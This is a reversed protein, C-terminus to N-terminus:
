LISKRKRLRALNLIKYMRLLFYRDGLWGVLRGWLATLGKPIDPLPTASTFDVACDDINFTYRGTRQIKPNINLFSRLQDLEINGLWQPLDSTAKFECVNALNQLLLRQGQTLQNERSEFYAVDPDIHLLPKLWLRHLVTRIANKTGPITPNYLLYADRYKEWYHAVDPGIRIADCLGIAPLIPTGCTLFFADAGMAERMMRLAERYAAERPMDKFRKGKLAGGFLFDLKLYDFGWVRVQKMLAVLWSTVDPHTTDLAYLREGWNFGASVLKGTKDHLFWDPHERFLKSSKTAILPALWLGARRGTSKIKDALAKMGSPFKANVEWDGIDVQWGDDVQLVDFPLDGLDDFIKHLTREDIATYLSYWSCWVRPAVDKKIQGFRIGLENVYEAFVVQEQGHAIFWEVAEAECRGSLQDQLSVNADTDLAGLLLVNGDAFEVAGLWSGNLYKKHVHEADLQLPHFIAPKPVPLLTPDTWAALSWSQWGHRYYRVPQSPLEVHIEKAKIIKSKSQIDSFSISTMFKEKYTV